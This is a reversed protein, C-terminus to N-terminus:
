FLCAGGGSAKENTYCFARYSDHSQASVPGLVILRMSHNTSLKGYQLQSFGQEFKTHINKDTPLPLDRQRHQLLGSRPSYTCRDNRPHKSPLPPFVNLRISPHQRMAPLPPTTCAHTQPASAGRTVVFLAADSPQGEERQLIWHAQASTTLVCSSVLRPM